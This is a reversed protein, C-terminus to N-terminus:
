LRALLEIFGQGLDDFFPLSGALDIGFEIGPRQRDSDVCEHHADPEDRYSSSLLLQFRM